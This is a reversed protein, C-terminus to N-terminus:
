LREFVLIDTGGNGGSIDILEIKNSSVSTIDWDDNLDDFEDNANSFFLTLDLNGNSDNSDNSISITWSGRYTISDKSATVSQDSGFQFVFGSFHYTEDKGSDEYNTM